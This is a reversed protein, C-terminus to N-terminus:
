HIEIKLVRGTRDTVRVRESLRLGPIWIVSERDVLLPFVARERRPVKEDTFVDQVKRKKGGMGLPEIRDGPMWSRVNMPFLIREPDVFATRDSGMAAQGKEVYRFSLTRGWEPIDVEGPVAVPYSYREEGKKEDRKKFRGPFAPGSAPAGREFCLAAYERRVRVNFPMDLVAGPNEGNLIKMVARVHRYGIGNKLPSAKLLITKIIRRRLAEHLSRLAELPIRVMEDPGAANWQNMIDEVIGQLYDEEQRIIEATRGLNEVLRPNYGDVLAPLLSKRIRNRLCIERENSPDEVFSAGEQKLFALIEKRTVEILPRIYIRDRVPAMGTLGEPGSGRLLRMLVTEAQDDLHHGLAVRNMGERRRLEDFFAYRERRCIEELSGKDRRLAEGIDAKRSFFPIKLSECLRRVFMEEQDSESGRLGHNLHAVALTLDYEQASLRNLIILLAVSDPGGSVAALVRDHTHLLDYKEITRRVKKMM